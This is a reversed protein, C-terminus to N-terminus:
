ERGRFVGEIPSSPPAAWGRVDDGTLEDEANDPYPRTITRINLDPKRPHTASAAFAHALDKTNFHTHIPLSPSTTRKNQPTPM